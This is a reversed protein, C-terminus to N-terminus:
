TELVVSQCPIRPCCRLDFKTSGRPPVFPGADGGTTATTPLFALDFQQEPPIDRGHEDRIVGYYEPMESHSAGGGGTQPEFLPSNDIYIEYTVDPATPKELPYDWSAGGAARWSLVAETGDELHLSAGIISAMAAIQSTTTGNRTIAIPRVLRAAAHFCFDGDTLLVGPRTRGEVVSLPARHFLSGELNIIWRFDSEDGGTASTPDFGATPQYKSVLGVGPRPGRITLGPHQGDFRGFHRMTIIDPRGPSKTRVEVSFTHPPHASQHIDVACSSRDGSARLILLGHFFIKITPRQPLTTTTEFPMLKNEKLL